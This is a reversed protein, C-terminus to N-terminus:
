RKQCDPCYLKTEPLVDWHNDVLHVNFARKGVSIHGCYDCKHELKHQNSPKKKIESNTNSATKYEDGKSTPEQVLM